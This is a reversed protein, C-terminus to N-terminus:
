ACHGNSRRIPRGINRSFEEETEEFIEELKSREGNHRRAKEGEVVEEVTANELGM